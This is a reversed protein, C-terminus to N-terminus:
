FSTLARVAFFFEALIKLISVILEESATKIKLYNNFFLDIILKLPTALTRSLYSGEIKVLFNKSAESAIYRERRRRERNM